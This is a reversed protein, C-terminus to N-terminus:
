VSHLSSHKIGKLEIRFLENPLLEAPKNAQVYIISIKRFGKIEPIKGLTYSM